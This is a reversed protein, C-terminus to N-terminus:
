DMTDVNIKIKNYYQIIEPKKKQIASVNTDAHMTSLIIVAKNKKPVYSCILLM